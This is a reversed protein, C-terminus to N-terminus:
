AEPVGIRDTIVHTVESHFMEAVPLRHQHEILGAVQLLAAM